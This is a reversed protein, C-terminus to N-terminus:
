RRTSLWYVSKSADLSHLVCTPNVMSSDMSVPVTLGRAM